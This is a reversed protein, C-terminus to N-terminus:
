LRKERLRIVLENQVTQEKQKGQLLLGLSEKQRKGMSRKKEKEYKIGMQQIKHWRRNQHLETSGSLFHAHSRFCKNKYVKRDKNQISLKAPMMLKYNSSLNEWM